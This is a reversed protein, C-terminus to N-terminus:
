DAHPGMDYWWWHPAINVMSWESIVETTEESANEDFFYLITYQESDEITFEILDKNVGIADISYFKMLEKVTQMDIHVEVSGENLESQSDYVMDKVVFFSIDKGEYQSFQEAVADFYKKRIAFERVKVPEEQGKFHSNGCPWEYVEPNMAHPTRKEEITNNVTDTGQSGETVKDTKDQNQINGSSEEDKNETDSKETYETSVAQQNDDKNQEQKGVLKSNGINYIIVVSVTILIIATSILIIVARKM